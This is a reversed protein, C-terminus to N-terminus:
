LTLRLYKCNNTCVIKYADNHTDQITKDKFININNQICM